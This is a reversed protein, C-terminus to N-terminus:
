KNIDQLVLLLRDSLEYFLQRGESDNHKGQLAVAIKDVPKIALFARPKGNSGAHFVKLDSTGPNALYWGLGIMGINDEAFPQWSYNYLTTDNVYTNNMVGCAFLAMDHISSYVLGGPAEFLLNPVSFTKAGVPEGIYDKVLRNYSSGSIESLIDGIIGFGQTSYMVGTGPQFELNLKGGKWMKSHHPVGSQHSLLQKFTIPSNKYEGPLVDDYKKSYNEIPADLDSIRGEELMQMFIISTVPKSVSAYVDTRGIRDQGYSRTLLIGDGQVLAVSIYKYNGLYDSVIQDVEESQDGTLRNVGTFQDRDNMLDSLDDCSALLFLGTVLGLAFRRM